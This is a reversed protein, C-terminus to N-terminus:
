FGTVAQLLVYYDDVCCCNCLQKASTHASSESRMGAFRTFEDSFAEKKKTSTKKLKADPRIQKNPEVVVLRKHTLKNVM